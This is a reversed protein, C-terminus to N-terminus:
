LEFNNDWIIFCNNVKMSTFVPLNNNNNIFFVPNYQGWIGYLIARGLDPLIM